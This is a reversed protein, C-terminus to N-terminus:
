LRYLGHLGPARALGTGAPCRVPRAWQGLLMLKFMGLCNYPDPGGAGSKERKYLGKLHGAISHWDLLEHLKMSPSDQVLPRAGMLFFSEM